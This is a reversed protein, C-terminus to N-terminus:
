VFTSCKFINCSEEALIWRSDRFFNFCSSDRVPIMFARENILLVETNMSIMTSFRISTVFNNKTPNFTRGTRSTVLRTFVEFFFTAITQISCRINTIPTILFDIVTRNGMFVVVVSSEHFEDHSVTMNNIDFSFLEGNEEFTYVEAM